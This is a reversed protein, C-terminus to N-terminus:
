RIIDLDVLKPELNALRMFFDNAQNTTVDEGGDPLMFKYTGM